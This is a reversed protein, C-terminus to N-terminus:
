SCDWTETERASEFSSLIALSSKSLYCCGLEFWAKFDEKELDSLTYSQSHPGALGQISSIKFARLQRKPSVSTRHCSALSWSILLM